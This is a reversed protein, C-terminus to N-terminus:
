FGKKACFRVRHILQPLDRLPWRERLFPDTVWRWLTVLTIM